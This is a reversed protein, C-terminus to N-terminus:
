FMILIARGDQPQSFTITLNNNDILSIGDSLIVNDSMDYITIQIRKTGGNHNINWILSPSTQIFEFGSCVSSINPIPIGKIEGSDKGLIEGDNLEIFHLQRPGPGRRVAITEQNPDNPTWPRRPLETQIFDEFSSM